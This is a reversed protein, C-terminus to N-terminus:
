AIKMEPHIDFVHSLKIAYTYNLDGSIIMGIAFNNEDFIISGSNGPQSIAKEEDNTLILIDKVTRVRDRYHIEIEDCDSYIVGTTVIQKLCNYYKVPIQNDIDERTMERVKIDKQLQLKQRLFDNFAPTVGPLYLAIGYDFTGSIGGSWRDACAKDVNDLIITATDPMSYNTDGKLVHWCSLLHKSGTDTRELECGLSGFGNRGSKNSIVGTNGAHSIPVGSIIVDPVIDLTGVKLTPYLKQVENKTRATDVNIQIGKVGAATRTVKFISKVGPIQRIVPGFLRLAEDEADGSPPLSPTLPSSITVGSVAKSASKGALDKEPEKEEPKVGAGRIAVLKKLLDFWFPAGLSLMLGTIAIGWFSLKIPLLHVLFYDTKEWCTLTRTGELESIKTLDAPLQITVFDAGYRKNIFFISNAIIAQEKNLRMRWQNRVSDNRALKLSDTLEQITVNAKKMRDLVPRVISIENEPIDISIPKRQEEFKWGLGLLFNADHIDKSINAWSSDVTAQALTEGNSSIVAQYRSSDKALAVAMNAMQNRADKDRSLKRAIQITDVNFWAAVIFGLTFLIVQMKRKYWGSTRDMTENYWAELKKKFLVIDGDSDHALERLFQLSHAQIHHTNFQLCFNIREMDNNGSGKDRLLQAMNEAFATSSFYSPKTQTFWTKPEGASDVLYKIGPQEYFKGAFSYKFDPYEKLFFQRIIEWVNTYKLNGYADVYHDNLMKEIAVRLIRSRIGMWTSVMEGLITILLSYLLYILVLGIFVDLVINNFM